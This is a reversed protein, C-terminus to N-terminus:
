KTMYSKSDQKCQKKHKKQGRFFLVLVSRFSLTWFRPSLATFIAFALSIIIDFTPPGRDSKQTMRVTPRSGVFQPSQSAMRENLPGVFAASFVSFVSAQYPYRCSSPTRGHTQNFLSATYGTGCFPRHSYQCLQLQFLLFLTNYM